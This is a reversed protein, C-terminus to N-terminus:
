KQSAYKRCHWICPTKVLRNKLIRGYCNKHIDYTSLVADEAVSSYYITIIHHLVQFMYVLSQM